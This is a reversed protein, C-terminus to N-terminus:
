ILGYWLFLSAFGLVSVILLVLYIILIINCRIEMQHDPHTRMRNFKRARFAFIPALLFGLIGLIPVIIGVMCGIAAYMNKESKKQYFEDNVRKRFTSDCVDPFVPKPERVIPAHKLYTTGSQRTIIRNESKAENAPVDQQPDNVEATAENVSETAPITQKKKSVPNESYKVTGHKEVYFGKNYLRKQMTCSALLITLILFCLNFLRTTKM